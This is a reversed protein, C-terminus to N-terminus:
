IHAEHFAEATKALNVCVIALVVKCHPVCKHTLGAQIEPGYQPRNLIGDLDLLSLSPIRPEEVPPLGM